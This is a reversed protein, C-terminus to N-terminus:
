IVEIQNTSLEYLKKYKIEQQKKKESDIVYQIFSYVKDPTKLNLFYEDWSPRDYKSTM